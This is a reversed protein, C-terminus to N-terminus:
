LMKGPNLVGDPDLAKKLRRMVDLAVPDKAKALLDRKLRGIGHEASFSGGLDAVVAHVVENVPEWLALFAAPDAGIPQSVNFHINGDGMHGFPVVRAQPWQAEVASTARTIFEPVVGVPVSVDHKISGGELKQVDSM